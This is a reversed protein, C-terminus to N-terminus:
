NRSPDGSDDDAQEDTEDDDADRYAPGDFLGLSPIGLEKLGDLGLDRARKETDVGWQQLRRSTMALVVRLRNSTREYDDLVTQSIGPLNILNILLEKRRFLDGQETMLDHIRYPWECPSM